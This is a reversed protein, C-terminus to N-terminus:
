GTDISAFSSPLLPSLQLLLGHLAGALGDGGVFWCWKKVPRISKRDGLWQCGVIDASFPFIGCEMSKSVGFEGPTKWSQRQGSIAGQPLTAMGRM